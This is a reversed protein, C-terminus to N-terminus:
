SWKYKINDVGDRECLKDILEDIADPINSAHGFPSGCYRWSDGDWDYDVDGDKEMAIFNGIYDQESIRIEIM